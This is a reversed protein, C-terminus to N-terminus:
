SGTRACRIGTTNSTHTLRETADRGATIFRRPLGRRLTAGSLPGMPDTRSTPDGYYSSSYYDSVWEEVGGFQLFTGFFSRTGPFADYRDRIAMRDCGLPMGACPDYGCRASPLLDCRYDTGDWPYINDRPVPGRMAKEWEAETPLRRGGDWTCFQVAQARSVAQVPYDSRGPGYHWDWQPSGFTFDTCAGASVCQAFRSNIVPYRDIYFASVLVEAIPQTDSYSLSGRVFPGAPVCVESASEPTLRPAGACPNACAGSVSWSGCDAACTEERLEGPGCGTNELRTAGAECVGPLGTDEWASWTCDALCIREREACLALTESEAAGAACDQQGLCSSTPEWTGAAGCRQSQTGCFGCPAVRMMGPDCEPPLPGADGGGDLERGADAAGGSDAGADPDRGADLPRGGDLERGSDHEAGSDAIEGGDALPHSEGCGALLVALLVGLLLGPRTTRRRRLAGLVIFTTLLLLLLPPASTRASV